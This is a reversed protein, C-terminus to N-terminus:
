RDADTIYSALASGGRVAPSINANSRRFAAPFFWSLFLCRLASRKYKLQKMITPVLGEGIEVSENELSIEELGERAREGGVTLPAIAGIQKGLCHYCNICCDSARTEYLGTEASLSSSIFLSQLWPASSM